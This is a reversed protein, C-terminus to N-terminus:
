VTEPLLGSGIVVALLPSLLPRQNTRAEAAMAPTMNYLPRKTTEHPRRLARIAAGLGPTELRHRFDNIHPSIEGDLMLQMEVSPKANPNKVAHAKWLRVAVDHIEQAAHRRALKESKGSM